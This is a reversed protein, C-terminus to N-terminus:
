NTTSETDLGGLTALAAPGPIQLAIHYNPEVLGVALATGPHPQWPRRRETLHLSRTPTPCAGQRTAVIVVIPSPRM